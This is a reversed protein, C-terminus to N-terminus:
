LAGGSGQPEHREDRAAAVAARLTEAFRSREKPPLFAGIAMVEGRSSLTLQSDHRPPEEMEVRTWYPSFAWHQERGSPHRRTVDLREATVRVREALRAQRYSARFALWVLLVDLGFFGMVPWAGAAVYFVGAIFSTAAIAGMLVIFGSRSLSRFPRLEADLYVRPESTEPWPPPPESTM